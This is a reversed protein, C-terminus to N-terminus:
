RNVTDLDQQLQSEDNVGMVAKLPKTNDAFECLPPKWEQPPAPPPSRYPPPQPLYMYQWLQLAYFMDFGYVDHLYNDEIVRSRVHLEM